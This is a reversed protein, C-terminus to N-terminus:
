AGGVVLELELAVATGVPRGGFVLAGGYREAIRRAINLGLGAHGPKTTHFPELVAGRRSEPVGAGTDEVQIVYRAAMPTARVLVEGRLGTAEVANEVLCRVALALEKEDAMVQGSQAEVRITVACASVTRTCGVALHVCDAADVVSPAPTFVHGLQVRQELLENALRMEDRIIASMEEVRADAQWADTERLRRRIYFEANRTSAFKNRLEHRLLSAAEDVVAVLEVPGLPDVPLRVPEAV